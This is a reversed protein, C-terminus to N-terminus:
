FLGKQRSSSALAKALRRQPASVPYSELRSLPIWRGEAYFSSRFRGSSYRAEYCVLLIRHHTISHRLAMFEPGCEVKLGLVESCLRHIADDCCENSGLPAHPFEWLGAWRGHAPRQVLLVRRRRRVVACVEKTKIEKALRAPPPIRGQINQKRAACLREVPCAACQPQSNTCVLAGLEMLAQNFEGVRRVPLLQEAVTWLWARLPSRRPDESRGFVRCLVRQSNAELIPLRREYAQSLVAGVMYRGIGPLRALAVPDNPVRGGHEHVMRRGAQHLNRARAYYGLGEWLRLVQQESAAALDRVTPFARVFREFYPIVTAVQTQQLMVESVWIRYPNRDDRWPLRRRNRLYWNLLGRRFSVRFAFSLLGM